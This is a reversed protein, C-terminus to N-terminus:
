LKAAEEARNAVIRMEPKWVYVGSMSKADFCVEVSALYRLVKEFAAVLVGCDWIFINIEGKIVEGMNKGKQGIIYCHM